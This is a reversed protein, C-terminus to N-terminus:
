TVPRANRLDDLRSALTAVQEALAARRRRAGDVVATPARTTFASDDLKSDAAALLRHADVLARELRSRERDLDGAGRSLRAEGATAIVALGGLASAPLTELDVHVRVPRLRALRGFPEALAAHAARVEPDPLVLDAELLTAAEIGAGVRANRVARVLDILAEVAAGAEPDGLARERDADPWDAVILLDPDAPEHPLRAWIAETIFPMVPHLLRVYRELVWALTLWTAARADPM